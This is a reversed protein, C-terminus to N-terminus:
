PAERCIEPPAAKHGSLQIYAVEGVCNSLIVQRVQKRLRSFDLARHDDGVLERSLRAAEAEDLHRLRGIRGLRDLSEIVGIQLPAPNFNVLRAGAGASRAAAATATSIAPATAAATPASLATAAASIAVAPLM